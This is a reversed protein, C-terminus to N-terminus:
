QGPVSLATLEATVWGESPASDGVPQLSRRTGFSFNTSKNQFACSTRTALWWRAPRTSPCVTCWPTWRTLSRRLSSCRPMSSRTSQTSTTSCLKTSTESRTLEFRHTNGSSSLFFFFFIISKLPFFHIVPMGLDKRLTTLCFLQNQSTAQLYPDPWFRRPSRNLPLRSPFSSPAKFTNQVTIQLLQFQFWRSSLLLIMFFFFAACICTRSWM